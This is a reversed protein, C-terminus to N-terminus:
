YVIERASLGLALQFCWSGLVFTDALGNDKRKPAKAAVRLGGLTSLQNYAGFGAARIIRAQLDKFFFGRGSKGGGIRM